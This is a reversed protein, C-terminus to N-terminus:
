NRARLHGSVVKPDGVERKQIVVSRVPRVIAPAEAKKQCAALVLIALTALVAVRTGRMTGKLTQPRLCPGAIVEKLLRKDADNLKGTGVGAKIWIGFDADPCYYVVVNAEPLARYFAPPPQEAMLQLCEEQWPNAAFEEDHEEAVKRLEGVSIPELSEQVAKRRAEYLEKPFKLRELIMPKDKRM